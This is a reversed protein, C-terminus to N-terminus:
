AAEDRTLLKSLDALWKSNAEALENIAEAVVAFGRGVEGSRAAEIRANVSLISLHRLSSEIQGTLKMMQKNESVSAELMKEMEFRMKMEAEASVVIGQLHTLVNGDYHAVGRERVWVPTGNRHTMRYAIEWPKKAEIAADVEAAVRTKDETYTLDAWSVASNGILDDHAYGLMNSTAGDLEDMTYDEDNRCRYIIADVSAFITQLADM